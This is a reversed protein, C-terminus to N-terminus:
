LFGELMKPFFAVVALKHEDHTCTRQALAEEFDSAIGPALYSTM